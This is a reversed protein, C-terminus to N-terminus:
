FIMTEQNVSHCQTSLGRIKDGDLAEITAAAAAFAMPPYLTQYLILGILLFKFARSLSLMWSSLPIVM